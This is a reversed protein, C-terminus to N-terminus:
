MIMRHVDPLITCKGTNAILRELDAVSELSMINIDELLEGDLRSIFFVRYQSLINIMSVASDADPLKERRIFKEATETDQVQRYIELSRPLEGTLETCLVIVGNDADAIKAANELARMVTTWSGSDRGTITALVLDAKQSTLNTWIEQYQSYGDRAVEEYNGVLIRAIGSMKLSETNKSVELIESPEMISVEVQPIGPLIQMMCFVGLQRTADEIERELEHMLAHQTVHMKPGFGLFRKQTETDSFAPYIPTHIGVYGPTNKSQFYGIPLVFEAEFLARQIVLTENSETVGLLAMEEKQDPHHKLIKVRERFHELLSGKGSVSNEGSVSN